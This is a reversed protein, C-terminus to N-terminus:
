KTPTIAQTTISNIVAQIVDTTISDESFDLGSYLVAIACTTTIDLDPTDSDCRDELDM